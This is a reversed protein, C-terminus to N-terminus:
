EDIKTNSMLLKQFSLPAFNKFPYPHPSLSVKRLFNGKGWLFILIVVKAKKEIAFTVNWHAGKRM